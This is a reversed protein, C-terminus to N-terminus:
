WTPFLVCLQAQRKSVETNNTQGEAMNTGVGALQDVRTDCRELHKKPLIEEARFGELPRLHNKQKNTKKSSVEMNLM